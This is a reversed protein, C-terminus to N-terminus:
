ILNQADKSDVFSTGCVHLITLLKKICLKTQTMKYGQSWECRQIQIDRCYPNSIRPYWDLDVEPHWWCRCFLYWMCTFYNVIKLLRNVKPLPPLITPPLPKLFLCPPPPCSPHPFPTHYPPPTLPSCPPHFRYKFSIKLLVPITVNIKTIPICMILHFRGFDCKKPTEGIKPPFGWQLSM